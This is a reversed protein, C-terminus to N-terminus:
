ILIYEADKETKIDLKHERYGKGSIYIDTNALFEELKSNDGKCWISLTDYFDCKGSFRSM